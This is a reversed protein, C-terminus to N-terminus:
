DRALAMKEAKVNEHLHVLRVTMTLAIASEFLLKVDIARGELRFGEARGPYVRNLRSIKPNYKTSRLIPSDPLESQINELRENSFSDQVNIAILPFM